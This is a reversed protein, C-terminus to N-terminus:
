RVVGGPGASGSGSGRTAANLEEASLKGDSDKDLQNFRAGVDASAKAEERSVFGDKNADLSGTARGIGGVSDKPPTV